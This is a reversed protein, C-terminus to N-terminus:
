RPGAIVSPEAMRPERATSASSGRYILLGIVLAVVMHVTVIWAALESQVVVGGLWGQFGVLLLASAAWMRSVRGFSRALLTLM